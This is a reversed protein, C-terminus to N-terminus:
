NSRHLIKVEVDYLGFSRDVVDERWSGSDILTSEVKGPSFRPCVNAHCRRLDRYTRLRVDVLILANYPAVADLIQQPARPNPGSAIRVLAARDETPRYQAINGKYHFVLPFYSWQWAADTEYVVGKPSEIRDYVASVFGGPGHVFESAHALFLYTSVIAGAVTFVAATRCVSTWYRIEAHTAASGALFFTLPAFVWVSYSAKLVEFNKVLQSAVLTASVGSVIVIFVWDVVASKEMLIRRTSQIAGGLFLTLAGGLFLVAAMPSIMNASDGLLKLLYEIPQHSNATPENLTSSKSLAEASFVFPLIGASGVLTVVFAIIVELLVAPYRIYVLGLTFFFSLTSVLGFFHTYISLVSVMMFAALLKLDIKPQDNLIRVFVVTQVCTTAFFIPYARIEVASQMLKPSLCLIAFTVFSAALGLNRRASAVLVAIGGILFAAHFLRFGLTSPGFLRLWAWDFIYSLPPMRDVPVGLRGVDKGSLWRLMEGFSLRIGSLQTTEDIWIDQQKAFGYAAAAFALLPAAYLVVFWNGRNFYGRVMQEGFV